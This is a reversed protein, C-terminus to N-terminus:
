PHESVDSQSCQVLGDGQVDISNLAVAVDNQVAKSIGINRNAASCQFERERQDVFRVNTNKSALQKGEKLNCVGLELGAHGGLDAKGGLPLGNM